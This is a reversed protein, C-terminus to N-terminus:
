FAQLLARLYGGNYAQGIRRWATDGDMQPPTGARVMGQFRAQRLVQVAQPLLVDRHLAEKVSMTSRSSGIIGCARM